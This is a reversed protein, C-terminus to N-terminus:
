DGQRFLDSLAASLPTETGGSSIEAVEVTGALPQTIRRIVWSENTEVKVDDNQCCFFVNLGPVVYLENLNQIRICSIQVSVWGREINQILAYVPFVERSVRKDIHPGVQRSLICSRKWHPPRHQRMLYGAEDLIKRMCDGPRPCLVGGKRRLSADDLLDDQKASRLTGKYRLASFWIISIVLISKISLTLFMVM